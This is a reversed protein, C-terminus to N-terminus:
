QRLLQRGQKWQANSNTSATLAPEGDVQDDPCVILFCLHETFVLEDYVHKNLRYQFTETKEGLKLVVNCVLNNSTM